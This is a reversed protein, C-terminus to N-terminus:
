EKKVNGWFFVASANEEKQTELLGMQAKMNSQLETLDSEYDHLTIQVPHDVDYQISCISGRHSICPESSEDVCNNKRNWSRHAFYQGHIKLETEFKGGRQYRNEHIAAKDIYPWWDKLEDMRIIMKM